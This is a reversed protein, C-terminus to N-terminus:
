AEGHGKALFALSGRGFCWLLAAARQGGFGICLSAPLGARATWAPGHAAASASPPSARLPAPELVRSCCRVGLGTRGIGHRTDLHTLPELRLKLSTLFTPLMLPQDHNFDPATAESIPRQDRQLHRSPSSHACQDWTTTPGIDALVHSGREPNPSLFFDLSSSSSSSPLTPTPSM